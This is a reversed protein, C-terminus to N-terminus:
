SCGEVWEVEPMRGVRYRVVRGGADTEFVLRRGGDGSPTVVLTQAGEVYKHPRAEVRDGYLRRVRDSPDGVRAGRDTAVDPSEIEIRAVRGAVVMYLVGRGGDELGVHDCDPNLDERTALRGGLASDAEGLRMGIRVPGVGEATAVWRGGGGGTGCGAAILWALGSLALASAARLRTAKM